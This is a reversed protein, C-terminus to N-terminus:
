PSSRGCFDQADDAFTSLFWVNLSHSVVFAAKGPPGGCGQPHVVTCASLLSCSVLVSCVCVKREAEQSSWHRRRGGACCLLSAQQRDRVGSLSTAQKAASKRCAAATAGVGALTTRLM